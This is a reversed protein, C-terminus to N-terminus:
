SHAAAPEATASCPAVVASCASMSCSCSAVSEVTTSCSRSAAFEATTSCSAAAASAAAATASGVAESCSAQVTSCCVAEVPHVAVSSCAISSRRNQSYHLTSKWMCSVRRYTYRNSGEPLTDGGTTSLRQCVLAVNCLPHICVFCNRENIPLKSDLVHFVGCIYANAPQTDLSFGTPARCRLHM